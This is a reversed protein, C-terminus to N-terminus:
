LCFYFLYQRHFFEAKTDGITYLFNDMSDFSVFRLKIQENMNEGYVKNKMSDFEEEDITTEWLYGTIGEDLLGISLNVKSGLQM